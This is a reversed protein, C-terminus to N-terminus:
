IGLDFPFQGIISLNSSLVLSSRLFPYDRSKKEIARQGWEVVSLVLHELKSMLSESTYVRWILTFNTNILIWTNKLTYHSCSRFDGQWSDIFTIHIQSFREGGRRRLSTHYSFPGIRSMRTVTATTSGNAIKGFIPSSWFGTHTQINTPCGNISEFVM